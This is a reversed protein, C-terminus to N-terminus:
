DSTSRIFEKVDESFRRHEEEPTYVMHGAQYYRRTINGHLGEDLQLQNLGHDIVFYPCAFDYYGAACFVKLYPNRNMTEALHPLISLNFPDWHWRGFLRATNTYPRPTRYKLEGRLYYNVLPSLTQTLDYRGDTFRADLRDLQRRRNRLLESRFEESTIRLNQQTITELPLGTLPVMKEAVRHMEDRSLGSGKLLAPLYVTLAFERAAQELLSFDKRYREAVRGHFWATTCYTPFYLALGLADHDRVMVHAMELAPSIYILGNIDLGIRNNSQLERALLAGRIGGYSEGAIYIPSLWRRHETLYSRIFDAVSRADEMTGWFKEGKVGPAPRSFGTGVPDVMVIDTAALWSHPNDRLRPPPPPTNGEATLRATRPGITLLHLYFSSSGPGGNFCFTVPRIGQHHLKYSTYFFYAEPEDESSRLVQYGVTADYTHKKGEMTLTHTTTVPPPLQLSPPEGKPPANEQGAAQGSGVVFTLLIIFVSKTTKQIM